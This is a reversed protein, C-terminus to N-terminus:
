NLPMDWTQVEYIKKHCKLCEYTAKYNEETDEVKSIKMFIGGCKPCSLTYIPKNEVGKLFWWAFKIRNKLGHIRMENV